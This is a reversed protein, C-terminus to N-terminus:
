DVVDKKNDHCIRDRSGNLLKQAFISSHEKFNEILNVESPYQRFLSLSVTPSVEPSIKSLKHHKQKSAYLIVIKSKRGM